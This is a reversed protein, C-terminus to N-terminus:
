KLGRQVKHAKIWKRAFETVNPNPPTTRYPAEVLAQAESTSISINDASQSLFTIWDRGHLSAVQDRPFAALATRRLIEAVKAVDNDAAQLDTLASRRYANLRRHRRYLLVGCAIAAVLLLALVAWGLTQPAMSIPAPAPAPELMDLLEVLSKGEVDVSM